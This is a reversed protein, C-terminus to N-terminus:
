ERDKSRLDADMELDRNQSRGGAYEYTVHEGCKQCRPLVTNKRVSVTHPMRHQYHTVRYIGDSPAREGAKLIKSM